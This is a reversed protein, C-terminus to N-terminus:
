SENTAEKYAEFLRDFNVITQSLLHRLSTNLMELRQIQKEQEEYIDFAAQVIEAKSFDYLTFKPQESTIVLRM